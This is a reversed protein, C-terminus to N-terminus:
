PEPDYDLWREPPVSAIFAALEPDALQAAFAASCRWGDVELWLISTPKFCVCEPHVQPHYQAALTVKRRVLTAERAATRPITSDYMCTQTIGAISARMYSIRERGASLSM